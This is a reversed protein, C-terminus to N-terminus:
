TKLNKHKRFTKFLFEFINVYAILFERNEKKEKVPLHEIGVNEVYIGPWIMDMLTSKYGNTKLLM